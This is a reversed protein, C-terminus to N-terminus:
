FGVDLLLGVSKVTQTSAGTFLKNKEILIDLGINVGSGLNYGGGTEFTSSTRGDYSGIFFPSEVKSRLYATGVTWPGTTYSLGVTWTTRDEDPIIAGLLTCDLDAAKAWAGGLTFGRYTINAGTGLETPDIGSIGSQGATYFGDAAFGVNGFTGVYNVAIEYVNHIQGPVLPRLFLGNASTSHFTDDPTFSGGVQFGALRPTFYTVKNTNTTMVSYTIPMAPFVGISGDGINSVDPFDVGNGPVFWPSSYHMKFAAGNTGGVEVRGFDGEIYTFLQKFTAFGNSSAFAAAPISTSGLSLKAEVGAQMGNDLVGDAKININRGIVAVKSDQYSTAGLNDADIM